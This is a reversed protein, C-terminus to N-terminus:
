TIRATDIFKNVARITNIFQVYNFKCCTMLKKQCFETSKKLFFDGHSFLLHVASSGGDGNIEM